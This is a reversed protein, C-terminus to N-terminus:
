SKQIGGRHSRDWTGMRGLPLVRGVRRPQDDGGVRAVTDGARVCAAVRQGVRVLLADAAPHGLSDNVLKFDDLDLSVVAVSRDDRRRLMMAHVLRDRFLTRNGLGTLPDRLAQDAAVSLLRRNEWAAVAQRLSVVTVVIPVLISELGSMVFMPGVTGALWLPVYPLWLASNSPLALGTGPLPLSHRSVVAAAVFAVMAVAWVIDIVGGTVYGGRATEYAFLSHAVTMLGVGLTLLALVGRQQVGARALVVVAITLVIIDAVPYVFALGLALPDEHFREYVHRLFMVWALLFLCSAVTAADLVPRWRTQGTPEAPFRVLGAVLLIMCALFFVDAASPFPATELIVNSFVWIVDGISWAALAAALAMWVSRLRGHVSRATWVACGAAYVSLALIVVNDIVRVVGHGRGVLLLVALAAVVASPVAM